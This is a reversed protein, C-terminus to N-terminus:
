DVKQGTKPLNACREGKSFHAERHCNPCLIIVNEETYGLVPDIRHRDCPAKDWGCKSCKRNDLLAKGTWYVSHDSFRKHHKECFKGYRVHGKYYGKNRGLNDCGEHQCQKRENM